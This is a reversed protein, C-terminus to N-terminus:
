LATGFTTKTLSRNCVDVVVYYMKRILGQGQQSCGNNMETGAGDTKTPWM